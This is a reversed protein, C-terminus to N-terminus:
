SITCCDHDGAGGNSDSSLIKAKPPVVPMAYPLSSKADMEESHTEKQNNSFNFSTEIKELETTKSPLSVYGMKNLRKIILTIKTIIGEHHRLSIIKGQEIDVIGIAVHECLKLKISKYYDRERGPVESFIREDATMFIIISNSTTLPKQLDRYQYLLHNKVVIERRKLQDTLVYGTEKAASELIPDPNFAFPQM